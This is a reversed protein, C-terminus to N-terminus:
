GWSFLLLSFDNLVHNFIIIETIVFWSSTDYLSVSKASSKRPAARLVLVISSGSMAMLWGDGVNLVLINIVLRRLWIIIITKAIFLSISIGLIAHIISLIVLEDEERRLDM